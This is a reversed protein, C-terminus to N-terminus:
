SPATCPGSSPSPTCSGTAPRPRLGRPRDGELEQREFYGIAEASFLWLTLLQALGVLGSSVHTELAKLARPSAAPRRYLWAAAYLAVIGFVFALFRGNLVPTFEAVEISPTELVLLRLVACVLVLLGAARSQWSRTLRGLGVLVVGEATWAVPVWEGTLQLPAAVTLFVLAVGGLQLPVVRSVGPRRFADLAVVGHVARWSCPSSGSGRNTAM